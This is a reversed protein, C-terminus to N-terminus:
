VASTSYPPSNMQLQATSKSKKKFSYIKRLFILAVMLFIIEALQWDFGFSWLWALYLKFFFARYSFYYFSNKSRIITLGKKIAAASLYLMLIALYGKFIVYYEGFVTMLDSQYSEDIESRKADPMGYYVNQMANAAKPADFVDFGPTFINDVASKGYYVLNVVRSYEKSNAIMDASMDLYGARDFAPRLVIKLKDNDFDGKFNEVFGKVIEGPEKDVIGQKKALRYPRWMTAFSFILFLVPICMVFMALTRQKIRLRNHLSFAAFVMSLALTLMASRSGILTRVVIFLLLLFQFAIRHKRAIQQSNLNYYVISFLLIVDTNFLLTVFGSLSGFVSKNALTMLDISVVSTLVLLVKTIGSKQNGDAFNIEKIKKNKVTKLGLAMSLVAFMIFLLSRNMDDPTFTFRPLVVSWPEYLLTTVRFMYFPIVTMMLLLLLPERGKREWLLLLHNQFAFVLFIMITYNDVYQNVGESAYMLLTVAVVAANM